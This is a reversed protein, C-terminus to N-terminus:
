ASLSCRGLIREPHVAFGRCHGDSPDRPDLVVLGIFFVMVPVLILTTWYGAMSIVLATTFTAGVAVGLISRMANNLVPISRMQAGLLAAILCAIIPGLLWPLPLGMLHFALVGSGAIAHTIAIQRM